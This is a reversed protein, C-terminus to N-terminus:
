RFRSKHVRQAMTKKLFDLAEPTQCNTKGHDVPVPGISKAVALALQHLNDNRLGVCIVAQNMNHRVRNPRNHIGAEVVKLHELFFADPRDDEHMALACFVGWATAATWEPKRDRWALFKRDRHPSKAVLAAFADTVVYNDLDRVWADLQHSEFTESDAVMCALIRADHNGTDWLLLALDQDTGISKKLKNLDAYSVGFQEGTVGHNEFVRRNQITGAKKLKSMVQALNM